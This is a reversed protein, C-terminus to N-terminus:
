RANAQGGYLNFTPSEAFAAYTFTQSSTNFALSSRRLKFGNSLIDIDSDSVEGSAENALLEKGSINYTDRVTDYIYWGYASTSSKIMIWRPRFGTIIAPGDSSSNGSYSGFKSFGPIEAWLYAIYSQGSANVGAGGSSLTFTNTGVASIRETNSSSANPLNLFLTNSPSTGLASHYTRWNQGDEGASTGKLFILGPTRGLGHSLTGSSGSGNWTIISFGQNTGVSAATPTITGGTLGAASASAYGVDNINFTSSNGGAKWCWAVIRENLRNYEGASGVTFGKNDFSTLTNARLVSNYTYDSVIRYLPGRITDFLGNHEGADRNKIWVFDPKFGTNLSQTGGNGTYTVIGVYQDPRVITPRATNSLALPQFGAPPPFKFPKQGFNANGAPTDSGRSFAPYYTGTAIGSAAIGLYVGNKYFSLNRNTADFAVGVTDGTGWTTGYSTNTGSNYLDSDRGFYGWTTSTQGAYQTPLLIEDSIGIMSGVSTQTYEWYWKGTSVGVTASVHGTTASGYALNLNGNSLTIASLCRLPNLTAYGSQKGRQTNINATFPNFNSAAANGNATITGPTVDAATASTQSKCCLLKTNAVSSIPGTPPTFNGTYLATGKVVHLNSIFGDFYYNGGSVMVDYGIYATTYNSDITSSFSNSLVQVGDLFTLITNGTKVVAIHQWKGTVVGNSVGGSAGNRTQNSGGVTADFWIEGVSGLYLRWDHQNNGAISGNDIIPDYNSLSNPYVFCEVTFDGSGFQFDSGSTLSLYDGNNDFAVAGDTSPVLAVNSSYSVGSPSDPIIDPDTSAPIFNSTYKAVGKYIRVDNIYGTFYSGDSEGLRGVALKNSSDNVTGSFSVTGTQVGDQFARLTNGDRVLALHTWKNAPVSQGTITYDTSGEAVGCIFTGSNRGMRFSMNTTNGGSNIQGLFRDTDSANSPYVWMECTFNGTGFTYDASDPTDLYDGTGDFYFSGGYFMSQTSSAAANGNATIAKNSTGSNIANSFDSKIGVLPLALVLSSANADTRVGVRAVKGGGDTNLIPLAGTAKDLATSGGFNVATWAIGVKGSQDQGIPASGDFPLYFGNTGFGVASGNDGSLAVTNKYKKPRWTNTLPDTYGFYEPGLAAGDILYVNSAYANLYSAGNVQGISHLNTTNVYTNADQALTTSVTLAQNVGNIYIKLRNSETSQTSDVSLVIHYWSGTDRFVANTQYVFVDAGGIRSDVYFVNTSIFGIIVRNSTDGFCSFIYQTRGLDGRKIWGSWTWTKQNGASSPTRTLYQSKGNDFRLGGGVVQANSQGATELNGARAVGM